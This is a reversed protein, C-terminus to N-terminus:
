CNEEEEGKPGVIRRLVSEEFLDICLFTSVMKICM